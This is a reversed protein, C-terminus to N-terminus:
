VHVDAQDSSVRDEKIGDVVKVVQAMSSSEVLNTWEGNARSDLNYRSSRDKSRLSIM